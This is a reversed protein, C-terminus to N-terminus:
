VQDALVLSLKKTGAAHKLVLEFATGPASKFQERLDYLPIDKAAKGNISLIKM